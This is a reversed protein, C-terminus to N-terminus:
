QLHHPLPKRPPKQKKDKTEGEDDGTKGRQAFMLQNSVGNSQSKGNCNYNPQYNFFLSQLVTVNSPYGVKNLVYNNEFHKKLDSFIVKDSDELYIIACMMEEVSTEAEKMDDNQLSYFGTTHLLFLIKM